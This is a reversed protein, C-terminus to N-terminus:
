ARQGTTMTNLGLSMLAALMGQLGPQWIWEYLQVLSDPPTQYVALGTVVSIAFYGTARLAQKLNQHM